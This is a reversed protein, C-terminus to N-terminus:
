LNVNHHEMIEKINELRMLVAETLPFKLPEDTIESFVKVWNTSSKIKSIIWKAEARLKILDNKPHPLDDLTLVNQCFVVVDQAGKPTTYFM